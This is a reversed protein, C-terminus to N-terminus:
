TCRSGASQFRARHALAPNGTDDVNGFVAKTPAISSLQDLVVAAGVDGAHVILNVGAFVPGISSRFLGHTDSILGVRVADDARGTM